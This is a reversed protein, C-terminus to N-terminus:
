IILYTNKYIFDSYLALQEKTRERIWEYDNFMLINPRLINKCKNCQPLNKAICKEYDIDIAKFPAEEINFCPRCQCHNISGHCEVIKDSPFGAKQFHGDVNSTYVFYNQDTLKKGMELLYKFGDHPKAKSYLNFRHSIILLIIGMSIGINHLIRM